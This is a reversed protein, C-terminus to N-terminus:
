SARGSTRRGGPPADLTPAVVTTPPSSDAAESGAATGGSKLYAEPDQQLAAWTEKPGIDPVGPM